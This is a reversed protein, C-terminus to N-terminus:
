SAKKEQHNMNACLWELAEQEKSFLKVNVNKPRFLNVFLSMPGSLLPTTLVAIGEMRENIKHHVLKRVSANTQGVELFRIFLSYRGTPCPIKEIDDFFDSIIELDTYRSMKMEIHLINTSEDYTYNALPTSSLILDKMKLPNEM